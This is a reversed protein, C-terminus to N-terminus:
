KMYGDQRVCGQKKFLRGSHPCSRPTVVGAPMWSCEHCKELSLAQVVYNEPGPGFHSHPAGQAFIFLFKLVALASAGVLHPTRLSQGTGVGISGGESM